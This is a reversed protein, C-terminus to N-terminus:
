VRAITQRVTKEFKDIGTRDLGLLRDQEGMAGLMMRLRSLISEINSPKGNSSCQIEVATWAEAYDSGLLRVESACIQTLGIVAPILPEELDGEKICIAKVACSTGAGFLFAIPKDHRALHDRLNAIAKSADHSPM